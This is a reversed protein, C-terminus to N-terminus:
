VKNQKVLEALKFDYINDINFSRNRPSLIGFSKKGKISNQKLINEVKSLYILGSRLYVDPLKQRPLNEKKEAYPPDILISNKDLLKMRAPHFSEVKQVSIVSSIKKNKILINIARNIDSVNRLPCTPQLVMIADFEINKKKFYLLAHKVVDITKAHDTSLKKPRLFPIDVGYNESIKAIKKSDTSVIVKNLKSNLATKITWYILPKNAFLKINKNKIEKSGGRAPIIGLVKM